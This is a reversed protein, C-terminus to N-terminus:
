NVFRDFNNKLQSSSRIVALDTELGANPKIGQKFYQIKSSDDLGLGNNHGVEELWRHAERHVHIYKEFNFQAKEGQYFTKQLQTFARERYTDKFSDGEYHARLSLWAGRGNKTRAFNHIYNYGLIGVLFGQLLQYVKANDDKYFNGALRANLTMDINDLDPNDVEMYNINVGEIQRIVYELPIDRSGTINSLQVTFRDRVSIWNDGRYTPIVIKDKDEETKVVLYRNEMYTVPGDIDLTRIDPIRNLALCRSVYFHIATLRKVVM